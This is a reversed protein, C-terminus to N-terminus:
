MSDIGSQTLHTPDRKKEQDALGTGEATSGAGAVCRLRAGFEPRLLTSLTARHSRM